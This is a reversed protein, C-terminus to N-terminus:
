RAEWKKVVAVMAAQVEAAWPHEHKLTELAGIGSLCQELLESTADAAHSEVAANQGSVYAPVEVRGCEIESAIQDVVTKMAACAERTMGYSACAFDEGGFALVIVGRRRHKLALAKADAITPNSM